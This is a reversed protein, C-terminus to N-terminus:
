SAKRQKTRQYKEASRTKACPKCTSERGNPGKKSRHFEDFPKATKCKTCLQHVAPDGGVARLAAIRRMENHLAIHASQNPLVMLNKPRNDDRIENIHHVVAERPLIRGLMREAVLRHEEVYGKDDACPHDPVLALVYGNSRRRGGNWNNNHAGTKSCRKSCFRGNGIDVHSPRAVFAGGCSECVRAVGTEQAKGYCARSCYRGGGRRVESAKTAFAAGCQECIREEM